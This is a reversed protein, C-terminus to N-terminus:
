RPIGGSVAAEIVDRAQEVQFRVAKHVADPRQLRDAVDTRDVPQRAVTRENFPAPDRRHWLHRRVHAGVCSRLASRVACRFMSASRASRSTRAGSTGCAPPLQKWPPPAAPIVSYAQGLNLDPTREIADGSLESLRAHYERFPDMFRPRSRQIGLDIM